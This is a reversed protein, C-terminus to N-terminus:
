LYISRRMCLNWLVCKASRQLQIATAKWSGESVELPQECIAIHGAQPIVLLKANSFFSAVQVFALVFTLPTMTGDSFHPLKPGIYEHDSVCAQEEVSRM